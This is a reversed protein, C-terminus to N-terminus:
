ECRELVASEGMLRCSDIVCRQLALDGITTAPLACQLMCCRVAFTILVAELISIKSRIDGDGTELCRYFDVVAWNLAGETAFLM